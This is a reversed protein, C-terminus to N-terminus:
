AHSGGGARTARDAPTDGGPGSEPAAPTPQPAAPLEVRFAAGRAGELLRVTGGMGETLERVLALGLGSGPLGDRRARTGRAYREFVRGREARPIGDGDDTVDIQVNEGERRWALRVPTGPATFKAANDLLNALVRALATRDARACVGDDGDVRVDARRGPVLVSLARTVDAALDAVRVTDLDFARRAGELRSVDLLNELLSGLRATERAIRDVYTRERGPKGKGEALLDAQLRLSALPTRLDHAMENVFRVRAEDLRRRRRMAVLLLAPLLLFAVLLAAAIPGWRRVVPAEWWGTGHPASWVFTGALPAAVHGRWVEHMGSSADPPFIWHLRFGGDQPGTETFVEVPLADPGDPLLLPSGTGTAVVLLGGLVHCGPTLAGGQPEVAREWTRVAQVLAAADVLGPLTAGARRWRRLLWGKTAAALPADRLRALDPTDLLGILADTAPDLGGIRAAPKGTSLDLRTTPDALTAGPLGAPLAGAFRWPDAGLGQKGLRVRPTGLPHRVPVTTTEDGLASGGPQYARAVREPMWAAPGRPGTLWARVRAPADRRVAALEAKRADVAFVVLAGAVVFPLLFLPLLLWEARARM